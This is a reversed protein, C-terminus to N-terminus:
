AHMSAEIVASLVSTSLFSEVRRISRLFKKIRLRHEATPAIREAELALPAIPLLLDKKGPQQVRADASISELATLMDEFISLGEVDDVLSSSEGVSLREQARIALSMFTYHCKLIICDDSNSEMEALATTYWSNLFSKVEEFTLSSGEANESSRLECAWVVSTVFLLADATSSSEIQSLRGLRPDKFKRRVTTVADVGLRTDIFPQTRQGWHSLGRWITCDLNKGVGLPTRSNEYALLMRVFGKVHLVAARTDEIINDHLWLVVCALMVVDTSANPAYMHKLAQDYHWVRRHRKVNRNLYYEEGAMAVAILAHKIAQHREGLFPLVKQFFDAQSYTSLWPAIVGGYIDLHFVEESTTLITITERNPHNYYKELLDNNKGYQYDAVDSYVCTHNLRACAHCIPRAEDCKVRRKRCIM